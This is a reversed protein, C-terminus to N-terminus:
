ATSSHSSSGCPWTSRYRPNNRGQRPWPTACSHKGSSLAVSKERLGESVSIAQPAVITSVVALARFEPDSALSSLYTEIFGQIRAAPERDSDALRAFAADTHHAWAAGIAQRLLDTKDSFHHYVAGRTVGAQRAIVDFTAGSWGRDAFTLIASFIIAQRTAAPTRM